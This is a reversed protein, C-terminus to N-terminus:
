IWEGDCRFICYKLNQTNGKNSLNWWPPAVL